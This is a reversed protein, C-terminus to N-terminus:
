VPPTSILKSNTSSHDHESKIKAHFKDPFLHKDAPISERLTRKGVEKLFESFRKQRWANQRFNANGLLVLADELLDKIEDPDVAEADDEGGASFVFFTTPRFSGCFSSSSRMRSQKKINHYGPRPRAVYAGTNRSDTPSPHLLIYNENSSWKNKVKQYM